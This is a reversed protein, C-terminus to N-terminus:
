MEKYIKPQGILQRFFPQKFLMGRTDVGVRISVNL